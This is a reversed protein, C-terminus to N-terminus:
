VVSGMADWDMPPMKERAKVEQPDPTEPYPLSSNFAIEYCQMESLGPPVKRLNFEADAIVRLRNQIDISFM